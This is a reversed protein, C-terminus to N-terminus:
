SIKKLAQTANKATIITSYNAFTQYTVKYFRKKGFM